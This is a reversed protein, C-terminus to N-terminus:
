RARDFGARVRGAERGTVLRAADPEPRRRHAYLHAPRRTERPPILGREDALFPLSTYVRGDFRKPDPGRTVAIPSVRERWPQQKLSDSDKGRWAYLLQRGDPSFAPLAHVGTVQYAEGGFPGTRLFWVDDDAGERHSTFALLSGDPSWTPGGAEFSPSTFRYPPASGDTPAMWIETHRRDKDEVVTTVTFAARRGDPSLVPDGVFTMRYYDTAQFPRTQATLRDPPRATSLGIVAAPLLWRSNM